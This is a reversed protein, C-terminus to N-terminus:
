IWPQWGTFLNCLNNPDRAENILFKVQGTVNHMGSTGDEYGQLKDHVKTMARAAAENKNDDTLSSSWSPSWRDLTDSVIASLITQVTDANKRLVALTAEASKSFVGETGCPGMGDVINRTLRFPVTEPTPLLQQKKHIINDACHASTFLVQGTIRVKAQEFVFGFDIHALEGTKTDILINSTHRDGIGLVHGVIYIISTCLLILQHM